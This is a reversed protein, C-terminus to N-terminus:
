KPWGNESFSPNKPRIAWTALVLISLILNWMDLVSRFVSLFSGHGVIGYQICVFGEEVEGKGAVILLSGSWKVKEFGNVSM